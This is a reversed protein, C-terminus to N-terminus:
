EKQAQTPWQKSSARGDLVCGVCVYEKCSSCETGAALLERLLPQARRWWWRM